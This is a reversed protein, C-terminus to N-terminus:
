WSVISHSRRRTGPDDECPESLLKRTSTDFAIPVLFPRAVLAKNRECLFTGDLYYNLAQRPKGEPGAHFTEMSDDRGSLLVIEIVQGPLLSSISYKFNPVPTRSVDPMVISGSGTIQANLAMREPSVQVVVGAPATVDLVSAREPLQVRGNLSELREFGVNKFTLHHERFFDLDAGVVRGGGLPLRLGSATTISIEPLTASVGQGAVWAEQEDRWRELVSVSYKAEDKDVVDSCSHCLWIGNNPHRREESTQGSDYRPGGPAAGRIHAAVGSSLSRNPDSHAQLTFGRHSPNSCIYNVRAAIVAKTKDSFEDRM